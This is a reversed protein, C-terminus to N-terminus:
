IMGQDRAEKKFYPVSKTVQKLDTSYSLFLLVASEANSSLLDDILDEHHLQNGYLFTSTHYQLCPDSLDITKSQPALLPM